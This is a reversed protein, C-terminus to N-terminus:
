LLPMDILHISSHVENGSNGDSTPHNKETKKAKEHKLEKKNNGKLNRKKIKDKLKEEL